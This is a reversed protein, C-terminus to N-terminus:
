RRQLAGKQRVQIGMWMSYRSSASMRGPRVSLFTCKLSASLSIEAWIKLLTKLYVGSWLWELFCIPSSVIALSALIKSGVHWILTESLIYTLFSGLTLVVSLCVHMRGLLVKRRCKFTGLQLVKGERRLLGEGYKCGRVLPNGIHSKHIFWSRVLFAHGFLSLPTKASIHM